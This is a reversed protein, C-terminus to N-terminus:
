AKSQSQHIVKHYSFKIHELRNRKLQYQLFDKENNNKAGEDEDDQWFNPIIKELETPLVGAFISNRAFATATPLISYYTIEQDINFYEALLPELAKWQDYRLNDILFLFIPETSLRPFLKKRLLQHSMLPKEIDANNLWEEYHQMIFKAFNANAEDKQMKLVDAMNQNGTNEMELEWYVLKKYLEAWEDHNMKESFALMINRFDQQYNQTTKESIIRKQDLLKKISLLIQNPNVPKILYDDIKSGIAEEMITEEESKTIMVVPVHPRITKIQSLVELGSMGPMNEDLFILDYSQESCKELADAGSNVPTIDYGKKSLFLIHPKLLDIEDDAWLINYRQM